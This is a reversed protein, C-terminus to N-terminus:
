LGSQRVCMIDYILSCLRKYQKVVVDRNYVQTDNKPHRVTWDVIRLWTEDKQRMKWFKEWSYADREVRDGVSRKYPMLVVNHKNCFTESNNGEPLKKVLLAEFGQIGDLVLYSHGKEMAKQLVDEITVKEQHEKRWELYGLQENYPGKENKLRIYCKAEGPQEDLYYSILDDTIILLYGPETGFLTERLKQDVKSGGFGEDFSRKMKELVLQQEPKIDGAYVTPKWLIARENKLANYIDYLTLREESSKHVNQSNTDYTLKQTQFRKKVAMLKQVDDNEWTQGFKLMGLCLVATEYNSLDDLKDHLLHKIYFKLIENGQKIIEVKKEPRFGNRSILLWDEAKANIFDIFLSLRGSILGGKTDNDKNIREVLIGRFCFEDEKKYTHDAFVEAYLYRECDWLCLKRRDDKRETWTNKEIWTDEEVWTYVYNSDDDYSFRQKERLVSLLRGRLVDDGRDLTMGGYRLQIPFLCNPIVTAIYKKIEGVVHEGFDKQVLYTWQDGARLGLMQEKKQQSVYDIFKEKDIDLIVETGPSKQGESSLVNIEGDERPTILTFIHGQGDDMGLTKIEIKDTVMFGSQIGIGFGGTPYLWPAMEQLNKKYKARTKWGSGIVALVKICEEEMGIGKDRFVLRIGESVGQSIDGTLSLIVEIQLEELYDANLQFPTLEHTGMEDEIYARNAWEGMSKISFMVKTADMANQIYERMFVFPDDYLKDGILVDIFRKENVSFKHLEQKYPQGQLFIKLNCKYFTCGGINTPAINNWNSTINRIEEEIMHFWRATVRCTEVDDAMEVAEITKETILLHSLCLHKNLHAQSVTPFIGFHEMTHLDFRNNDMDLLDGIRLLSAIFQPHMKETGFGDVETMLHELIYSYNENHAYAVDGLVKYLRSEAIKMGVIESFRELFKKSRESHKSRIYENTLIMVDKKLHVPWERTLEFIRYKDNNLGDMQQQHNLMNHLQIYYRAEEQLKWEPDNALKEIYAHFEEDDRWLELVEENKISMGTDHGYAANLLLWLNGIGLRKVRSKGLFKEVAVIITQSHSKDHASYNQFDYAITQTTKIYHEKNVQWEYYIKIKDDSESCLKYLCLETYTDANISKKNGSKEIAHIMKKSINKNKM